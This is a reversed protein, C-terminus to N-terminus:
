ILYNNVWCQMKYKKIKGKPIETNDVDKIYEKTTMNAEKLTLTDSLVM